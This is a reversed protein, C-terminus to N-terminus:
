IQFNRQEKEFKFVERNKRLNSFKETREVNKDM